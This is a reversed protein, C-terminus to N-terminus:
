ASPDLLCTTLVRSTQGPAVKMVDGDSKDVALSVRQGSPLQLVFNGGADSLANALLRGDAALARVPTHARPQFFDDVVCGELRVTVRSPTSPLPQTAAAAHRQEVHAAAAPPAGRLAVVDDGGGGCGALLLAVALAAAVAMAPVLLPSAKSCNTRNM